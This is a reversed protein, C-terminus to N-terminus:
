EVVREVNLSAHGYRPLGKGNTVKAWGWGPYGVEGRPEVGRSRLFEKVDEREEYGEDDLYFVRGYYTVEVASRETGVLHRAWYHPMGPDDAVIVRVQRAECPEGNWHPQKSMRIM